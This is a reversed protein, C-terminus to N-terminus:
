RANKIRWTKISYAILDGLYDYFNYITIEDGFTILYALDIIYNYIGLSSNDSYQKHNKLILTSDKGLSFSFLNSIQNGEFVLNKSKNFTIASPFVKKENNILGPFPSTKKERYRSVREWGENDLFILLYYDNTLINMINIEPKSLIEPLINRIEKPVSILRNIINILKEQNINPANSSSDFISIRYFIARLQSIQNKNPLITAIKLINEKDIDLIKLVSDLIINPNFSLNRNTYIIQSQKKIINFIDDRIGFFNKLVHYAPAGDANLEQGLPQNVTDTIYALIFNLLAENYKNQFFLSIGKMHLPAGQHIRRKEVNQRENIEFIILNYLKEAKDYNELALLRSAEFEQGKILEKMDEPIEASM